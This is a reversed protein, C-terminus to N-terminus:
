LDVCINCSLTSKLLPFLMAKVYGRGCGLDVILHEQNNALSAIIDCLVTVEHTKKVTMFKDFPVTSSLPNIQMEKWVTALDDLVGLSELSHQKIGDMLAMLNPGIHDLKREGLHLYDDPLLVLQSEDLTMLDSKLQEDLKAWENGTFFHVMHTNLISLYKELFGSLKKLASKRCCM